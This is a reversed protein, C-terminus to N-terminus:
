RDIKTIDLFTILSEGIEEFYITCHNKFEEITKEKIQVFSNVM